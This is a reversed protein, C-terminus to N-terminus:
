PRRASTSPRRLPTNRTVPLHFPDYRPRRPPADVRIYAATEEARHVSWKGSEGWEDLLHKVARRVAAEGGARYVGGTFFHLREGSPHTSPPAMTQAGESRLSLIEAGDGTVWRRTRGPTDCRYLRHSCPKGARGFITGTPPLFQDALALADADDIDVDILGGSAAGTKLGINGGQAFDNPTFVRKQWAPIKPAKERPPLPVIGWGRHVYVTAAERATMMTEGQANGV